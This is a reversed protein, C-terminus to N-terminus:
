APLVNPNLRFFNHPDYQKKIRMLRPLNPGFNATMADQDACTLNAYFGSTFPQLRKWIQEIEARKKESDAPDEWFARIALQFWERRNAIATETPALDAIAGGCIALGVSRDESMIEEILAPTLRDVQASKVYEAFPAHLPGDFASQLKVYEWGRVSDARPKTETRLSQLTKWAMRADGAFGFFLVPYKDKPADGM